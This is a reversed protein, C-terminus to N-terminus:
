APNAIPHHAALHCSCPVRDDIANNWADGKCNPHKGASCEPCAVALSAPRRIGSLDPELVVEVYGSPTNETDLVPRLGLDARIQEIPRVAISSRAVARVYARAYLKPNGVDFGAVVRSRAHELGLRITRAQATTRIRRPRRRARRTPAPTM